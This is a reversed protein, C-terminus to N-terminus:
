PVPGLVASADNTAAKAGGSRWSRHRSMLVMSRLRCADSSRWAAGAHTCCGKLRTLSAADAQLLPM